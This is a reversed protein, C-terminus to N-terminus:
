NLDVNLIRKVHVGYLELTCCYAIMSCVSNVFMYVCYEEWYVGLMCEDYVLNVCLICHVNLICVIYIYIYIFYLTYMLINEIYKLYAHVRVKCVLYM